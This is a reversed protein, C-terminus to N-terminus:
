ALIRALLRLKCAMTADNSMGGPRAAERAVAKSLVTSREIAADLYIDGQAARLSLRACPGDSAVSVAVILVLLILKSGLVASTGRRRRCTPVAPGRM